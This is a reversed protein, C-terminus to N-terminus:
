QPRGRRAPLEFKEGQMEEYRQKQDDTLVGLAEKDANARIERLKGFRERRQEQSLDRFGAYLETTKEQSAKDVAALKEKQDDTLEMRNALWRNNLSALPGRIQTRIQMLRMFQERELVDRLEGFVKRDTQRSLEEAKERRQQRDEIDRLEAYQERLEATLKEVVENVSKTQEENLKIEKQVQEIRLLRLTSGRRAGMPGFGRPPGGGPAQAEAVASLVTGLLLATTLVVFGRVQSM